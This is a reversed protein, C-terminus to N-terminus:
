RQYFDLSRTCFDKTKRTFMVSQKAIKTQQLVKKVRIAYNKYTYIVSRKKSTQEVLQAIPPKGGFLVRVQSV